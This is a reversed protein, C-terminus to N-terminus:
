VAGVQRVLLLEDYAVGNLLLARPARGYEVFGAAFYLAIAATATATVALTVQELGPWAEAHGLAANLLARGIGRGRHASDVYMGRLFAKHQEKLGSEREIGVCGVLANDAYAGFYVRESSGSLVDCFYETSKVMEDEYASGFSSPSEQLAKLRLLRYSDADKATLHRILM